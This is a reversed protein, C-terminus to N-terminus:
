KRGFLKEIDGHALKVWTLVRFLLILRMNPSQVSATPLADHAPYLLSFYRHGVIPDIRSIADFDALSISLEEDAVVSTCM